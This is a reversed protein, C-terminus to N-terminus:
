CSILGIKKGVNQLAEGMFQKKRVAQIQHVSFGGGHFGSPNVAGFQLAPLEGSVTRSRTIRHLRCCLLSGHRCLHGWITRLIRKRGDKGVAASLFFFRAVTKKERGREEDTSRQLVPKPVTQFGVFLLKRDSDMQPPIRVHRKTLRRRKRREAKWASKLFFRTVLDPDASFLEPLYCGHGRATWARPFICGACPTKEVAVVHHGEQWAGGYFLRRRGWLHLQRVGLGRSRGGEIQNKGALPLLDQMANGFQPDHPRPGRLMGNAWQRRGEALGM